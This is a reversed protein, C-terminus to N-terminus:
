SVRQHYEGHCIFDQGLNQQDNCNILDNSHQCSSMSYQCFDDSAPWQRDMIIFNGLFKETIYSYHVMPVTVIFDKTDARGPRFSQQSDVAQQEFPDKGM